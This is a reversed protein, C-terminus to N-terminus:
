FKQSLDLWGPNMKEVLSDKKERRWKKIEKERSIAANIDTTEEFYVLKKLNYKATFGAVLKNKHEYIRRRLDNTVGVYMVQNNWTTLLYVFYNKTFVMILNRGETSIVLPLRFSLPPISIVFTLDFHCNSCQVFSELPKCLICGDNRHASARLLAFPCRLLRM